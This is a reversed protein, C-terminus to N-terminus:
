AFEKTRQSVTVGRTEVWGRTEQVVRGGTRLVETQRAVEYELALRVSKFSNMNKVEVKTGFETQGAPRVSVNADVRLSGEEMNGTSAGVWRLIDRMRMAYLQ